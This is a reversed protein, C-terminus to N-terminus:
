TEAYRYKAAFNERLEEAKFYARQANEYDKEIM